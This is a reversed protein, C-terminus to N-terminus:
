LRVQGSKHLESALSKMLNFNARMGDTLGTLNCLEPILAIERNTKKDKTIVLPQNKERIDIGYKKSYYEDYRTEVKDKGLPFTSTPSSEFDIREIQHTRSNQGYHTVVTSFKLEDSIQEKSKGQQQLQCLYEYLCDKRIVKSTLDIQIFSGQALHQM